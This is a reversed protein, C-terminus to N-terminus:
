NESDERIETAERADILGDGNADYESVLDMDVGTGKGFMIDDYKQKLAKRSEHPELWGNSDSDFEMEYPSKAPYNKFKWQQRKDFHTIEGDNNVDVYGTEVKTSGTTGEVGATVTLKGEGDAFVSSIFVVMLLNITLFITRDM